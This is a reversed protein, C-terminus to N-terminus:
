GIPRARYPGDGVGYVDRQITHCLRGETLSRCPHTPWGTLDFYEDTCIVHHHAHAWEMIDRDKAQPDGVATWHVAEVGAGQLVEVWSPPLNVDILIKM